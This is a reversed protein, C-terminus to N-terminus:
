RERPCSLRNRMLHVTLVAQVPEFRYRAWARQVRTNHAQTSIVIETAGRALTREEVAKLLHAYLGRGQAGSVIGALLIETRSDGEELTALGLVDDVGAGRLAGRLALCRGEAASRLAWERYGALAGGVDFLPNAMYHNGYAAFIDSVSARVEAPDVPEATRLDPSREPAHGKGAPLRWYVLCDAFVATRGLTTLEAFWGVNEAPYRLVVVDAASGLVAERVVPFPSGAAASVTLREISCGFRASELPSERARVAESEMVDYWGM